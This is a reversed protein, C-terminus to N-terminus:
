SKIELELRSLAFYLNQLEHVYKIEWWFTFVEHGALSHIFFEGKEFAISENQSIDIYLIDPEGTYKSRCWEFGFKLLWEETLPIPKIYDFDHTGYTSYVANFLISTIVAIQKESIIEILNGIRLEKAEM